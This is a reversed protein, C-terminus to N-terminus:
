MGSVKSVMFKKHCDPCECIGGEDMDGNSNPANFESSILSNCYPCDCYREVIVSVEVKKM